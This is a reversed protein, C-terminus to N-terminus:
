FDPRTRIYVGDGKGYGEPEIVILDNDDQMDTTYFQPFDNIKAYFFIKNFLVDAFLVITREESSAWWPTFSFFTEEYEQTYIRTVPSSDTLPWAVDLKIQYSLSYTPSFTLEYVSYSSSYVGIYIPRNLTM